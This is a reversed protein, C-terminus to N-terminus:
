PVIMIASEIVPTQSYAAYLGEQNILEKPVERRKWMMEFPNTFPFPSIRVSDASIWSPQLPEDSETGKNPSDARMTTRYAAQLSNTRSAGDTICLWLSLEDMAQLWKLHLHLLALSQGSHCGLKDTLRKSREKEALIFVQAKPSVGGVLNSVTEPRFSTYHMSCLMAAYESHEEIEALGRTYHPLRIMLPYDAVSFPRGRGDNWIPVEDLDIWARDHEKVAYNFEERRTDEPFVSDRLHLAMQGALNAHDDNTTLVFRDQKEAVLM